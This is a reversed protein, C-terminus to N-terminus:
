CAGSVYIPSLNVVEFFFLSFFKITMGAGLAPAEARTYIM